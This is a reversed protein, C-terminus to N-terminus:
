GRRARAKLARRFYLVAKEHAGKLSYYNGIVCCTEPRYKDTGVQPLRPTLWLCVCVCLYWWAVEGRACWPTRWAPCRQAKRACTCSTPTRTWGPAPSVLANPPPPPPAADSQRVRRGRRVCGELRFPDATRVLRFAAHAADFARMGYHASAAAATLFSSAPFAAALSTLLALAQPGEQAEVALQARFFARMWHPRLRLQQAAADPCAHLLALWCSWNCPYADCASALVARAEAVRERATLM